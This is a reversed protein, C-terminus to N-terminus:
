QQAGMVDDDALEAVLSSPDLLHAWTSNRLQANIDLGVVM